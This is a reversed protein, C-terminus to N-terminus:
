TTSPRAGCSWRPRRRRPVFVVPPRPSRTTTALGDLPRLRRHGPHCLIDGVALDAPVRADRVSCTARSATSASWPSRAPRPRRRRGPAPVGRLRQRLAGPPPQREHRRRGRRLHPHRPPGQHHRGHLAHGGAQAVIARGPEADVAATIGADACAGAAGRHGVRSITPAEEGEVYAVGSGAASRCSPCTTARRRVPGAGRRGPRLLRREFVQSGIHAHLGVLDVAASARRGSRRGGAAAGTAVASASSPTTRAPRSSSTPTPRSARAHRPHLVTPRAAPRRRM